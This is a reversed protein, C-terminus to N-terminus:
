VLRPTVGRVCFETRLITPMEQQSCLAGVLGRPVGDLGRPVGDLGQPM